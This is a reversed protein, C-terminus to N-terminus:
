RAPIGILGGVFVITDTIGAGPAADLTVTITVGTTAQTTIAWNDIKTASSGEGKVHQPVGTLAPIAAYEVEPTVTITCSTALAGQVTIADDITVGTNSADTKVALAMAPDNAAHTKRTLTVVAGSAAIDFFAGVNADAALAARLKTAVQAVTDENAVTVTVDKPTGGMNAATVTVVVDGDAVSPTAVTATMVQRTGGIFNSLSFGEVACAINPHAGPPVLVTM